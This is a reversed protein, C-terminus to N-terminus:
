QELIYEVSDASLFVNIFDKPARTIQVAVKDGSITRYDAEVKFKPDADTKKYTSMPVMYYIEVQSPVTIMKMGDPVNVTSVPVRRMKSVLPEVDIRIDVSDPIARTGPPLVLPMRVTQSAKVDNLVLPATAVSTLHSPLADLSFVMVSDTLARVKGNIAYQPGPLVSADVRVPLEIGRRSTFNINLSDPTIAQVQSGAGVMNRFYARLAQDGFSIRNGSKYTRFDITMEPAKKWLFKILQTGRARVSVNIAEPIPSVRTLSDPVNTIRVTCRLDRQIDDNLVQVVWLVAAIVVFVLFTATNKGQPSTILRHIKELREKV